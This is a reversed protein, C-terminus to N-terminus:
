SSTWGSSPRTSPLESGAADLALISGDANVIEVAATNGGYGATEPGSSALSGRTGWLRVIM